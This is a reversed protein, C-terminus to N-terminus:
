EQEKRQGRRSEQNKLVLPLHVIGTRKKREKKKIQKQILEALELENQTMLGTITEANQQQAEEDKFQEMEAFNQEKDVPNVSEAFPLKASTAGGELFVSGPLQFDPSKPSIAAEELVPQGCPLDGESDSEGEAAASDETLVKESALGLVPAPDSAVTEERVM